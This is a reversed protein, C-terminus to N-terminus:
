GESVAGAWRLCSSGAEVVVVVAAAAAAAAVVAVPPPCAGGRNKIREGFGNSRGGSGDHEGAEALCSCVPGAGAGRTEPAKGATCLSGFVASALPGFFQLWCPHGQSEMM